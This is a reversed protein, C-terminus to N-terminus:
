AGSDSPKFPGGLRLKWEARPASQSQSAKCILLLYIFLYIFFFFFLFLFLFPFPFLFFFFTAKCKGLLRANSHVESVDVTWEPGL